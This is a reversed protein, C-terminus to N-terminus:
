PQLKQAKNLYLAEDAAALLNASLQALSDEHTACVPSVLVPKGVSNLVSVGSADVGAFGVSVSFVFMEDSHNFVLPTAELRHAVADSAETSCGSLVIAFEDGGIRHISDLRRVKAGLVRALSKLCADGAAHGRSDNIGKLGDVDLLILGTPLGSRLTRELETKLGRDFSRRNGINTLPDRQVLAELDAVRERLVNNERRLQHLRQEARNAIDDVM